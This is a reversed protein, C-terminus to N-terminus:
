LGAIRPRRFRLFCSHVLNKGQAFLAGLCPVRGLREQVALAARISHKGGLVRSSIVLHFGIHNREALFHLTKLPLGGEVALQVLGHVLGDGLAGGRNVALALGSAGAIFVLGGEPAGHAGLRHWM